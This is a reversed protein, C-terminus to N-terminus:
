VYEVTGWESCSEETDTEKSSLSKRDERPAADNVGLGSRKLISHILKIQGRSLSHNTVFEYLTRGNQKRSANSRTPMLAYYLLARKGAAKNHRSIKKASIILENIDHQINSLVLPEANRWAHMAMHVFEFFQEGNVKSGFVSAAKNLDHVFQAKSCTSNKRLIRSKRVQKDSEISKLKSVSVVNARCSAMETLNEAPICNRRADDIRESAMKEAGAVWNGGNILMKRVIDFAWCDKIVRYPFIKMLVEYMTPREDEYQLCQAMIDSGASSINLRNIGTVFDEWGSRLFESSQKAREEQTDAAKITDQMVFRLAIIGYSWVDKRDQPVCPACCEPPLFEMSGFNMTAPSGIKIAHEFNCLKAQLGTTLLVNEPKVDNHIWGKEHVHYLAAAIQYLIGDFTERQISILLNQLCQTCAETDLRAWGNLKEFRIFRLIYPSAFINSYLDAEHELKEVKDSIKRTVTYYTNLRVQYLEGFTGGSLIRFVPKLQTPTDKSNMGLLFHGAQSLNPTVPNEEWVDVQKRHDGSGIHLINESLM